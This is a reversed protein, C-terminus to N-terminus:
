AGQWTLPDNENLDMRQWLKCSYSPTAHLCNLGALLNATEHEGGRFEHPLPLPCCIIPTSEIERFTTLRIRMRTVLSIIVFTHLTIAKM